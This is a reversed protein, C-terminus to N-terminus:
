RVRHPHDRDGGNGLPKQAGAVTKFEVILVAHDSALVVDPRPTKPVRRHNYTWPENADSTAVVCMWALRAGVKPSTEVEVTPNAGRTLEAVAEAPVGLVRLHDALRRELALRQWLVAVARALNTELIPRDDDTAEDTRRPIERARERPRM